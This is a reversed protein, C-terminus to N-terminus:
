KYHLLEINGGLRALRWITFGSGYAIGLVFEEDITHMTIGM